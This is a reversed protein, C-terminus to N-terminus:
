DLMPSRFCVVRRDGRPSPVNSLASSDLSAKENIYCGRGNGKEGCVVVYVVECQWLPLSFLLIAGFARM